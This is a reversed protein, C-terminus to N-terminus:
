AGIFATRILPDPIKVNVTYYSDHKNVPNIFYLGPYTTAAGLVIKNPEIFCMSTMNTNFQWQAWRIGKADLGNGFDAFLLVHRFPPPLTIWLKKTQPDGMVSVYRYANKDILKWFDEIKWSLEPRAFTGNFLLLGSQNAIVLFDVNIGGADLFTMVGHVPAGMAQDLAQEKWTVPEDFNDAYAYTRTKKFVYLIDRIEQANTLPSGDLPVIIIGDIKHMAEPEGSVSLRAISRNDTIGPPLGALTETTGFEGVVVLRSHYITLNVGAPIQDFNDFLYSADAILDQDFYKLNKTTQTNNDINGDPIFFFQYGAQDGNYDLIEKTSVLHRKIVYPNPSIPINSVDITHAGTYALSGFVEPGPVTFYGTDTEYVVAVIHFGADTAMGQGLAGLALVLPGGTPKPGGAPRAQTGDGKYVYVFENQLGLEYNVGQADVYTKFPTIYARGNYAVFGFDEMAPITLIPGHLTNGGVLHYIRGGTTLILLSQGTQMTYNYVRIIDSSLLQPNQYPSIGDRTKIGSHIFQINDAQIFHDDPVSEKDGRMWLGNFDEIVFAEHDRM